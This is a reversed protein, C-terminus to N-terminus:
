KRLVSDICDDIVKSISLKRRRAERVLAYHREESTRYAINGKFDERRVPEPIEKGLEIYLEVAAELAEKIEKLAKQPTTADTKVGPFELISVVYILKGKADVDQQIVYTWPLNMYYNIDKNNTKNNM